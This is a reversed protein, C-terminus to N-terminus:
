YIDMCTCKENHHQALEQYNKEITIIKRKLWEVYHVTNYRDHLHDRGTEGNYELEIGKLRCM